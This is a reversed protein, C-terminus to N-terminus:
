AAARLVGQRGASCSVCAAREMLSATAPPPSTPAASPTIGLSPSPNTTPHGSHAAGAKRSAGCGARPMRHPPTGTLSAAVHPHLLGHSPRQPRPHHQTAAQPRPLPSRQSSLCLLPKRLAPPLLRLPSRSRCPRGGLHGGQGLPHRLSPNSLGSSPCSAPGAAKHHHHHHPWPQFLAPSPPPQPRRGRPAGPSQEQPSRHSAPCPHYHQPQLDRPLNWCPPRPHRM